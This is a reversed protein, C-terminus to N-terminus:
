RKPIMLMAASAPPLRVDYAGASSARVHALRLRGTLQGTRTRSGFDQGGITVGTKAYASPATLRELVTDPSSAGRVAVSRASTLSDNILVLRITGNRGATAWTRLASDRPASVRLLRAGPPAAQAFMLMGYYLPHVSGVWTGHVQSFDFLGNLAHQFSHISVGDVGASVMEFMADLGWLASAFTDSVGARGNCTVSNMEDLLFRKGHRHALAIYPGVGDMIGRSAYTSLLHPVSPYGPSSQIQVCGNLGYRHFTVWRLGPAVPLFQPLDTLWSFSGTAPGALAVHPLAQRFRVFDEGFATFDWGPPRSFVPTGQGKMYWPIPVGHLENYWPTVRYLEPENGIELGQVLRPGLRRLLERAEVSAVRTSDDELNVGPMLRAGVADALAKTVAMWRPTLSYTIGPSQKIGRVPWWTRDTSQGGIRFLPRQRPDLNRILQVLVPNIHGPETGALAPITRYELGLGIFARPVPRRPRGTDISVTEVSASSSRAPSTRPAAASNAIAVAPVVAVVAAAAALLRRKRRWRGESV